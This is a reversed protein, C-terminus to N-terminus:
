KKIARIGIAALCVIYLLEGYNPVLEKLENVIVQDLRTLPRRCSKDPNLHATFSPKFIEAGPEPVINPFLGGFQSRLDKDSM